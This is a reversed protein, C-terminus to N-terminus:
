YTNHLTDPIIFNNQEKMDYHTNGILYFYVKKQLYIILGDYTLKTRKCWVDTSVKKM